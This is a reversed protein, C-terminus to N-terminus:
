VLTIPFNCGVMQVGHFHYFDKINKPFSDYVKKAKENFEPVIKNTKEPLDM